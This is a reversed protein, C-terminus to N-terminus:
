ILDLTCANKVRAYMSNNLVITIRGVDLIIPTIPTSRFYLISVLKFTIYTTYPQQYLHTHLTNYVIHLQIVVLRKDPDKNSVSTTSIIHLSQFEESRSHM